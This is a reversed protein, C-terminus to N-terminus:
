GMGFAITAVIIDIKQDQWESQIIGKDGKTMGAHYHNAKLGHVERLKKALKECDERSNCYIIGSAKEPQTRIFNAIDQDVMKGKKPRIEYYLNPRNFSQTLVKCREMKLSRRIDDQAKSNATATVAIMPVGPYNSKLEGLKRDLLACSILRRDKRASVFVRSVLLGLTM